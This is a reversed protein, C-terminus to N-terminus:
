KEKGKRGGQPLPKGVAYLQTQSAVYLAGNAAVPTSYIPAHLETQGLLKKKRAAAFAYLVGDETGIYLKGDAVLPSGWIHSRSDHQWALAGTKADFCYIRGDFDATFLLGGAVAPTSISRGIKDYSWLARPAEGPKAGDLPLAVLNGVGSGHEPDQGIAAYLIGGAVVPTMLVESPGAATAYTIPKGDKIRYREPNASATELGGKAIDLRIQGVMANLEERLLTQESVKNGFGFFRNFFRTFGIEAPTTAIIFKIEVNEAIAEPFAM